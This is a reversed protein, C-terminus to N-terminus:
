NEERWERIQCFIQMPREFLGRREENSLNEEAEIADVENLTECAEIREMVIFCSLKIYIIFNLM